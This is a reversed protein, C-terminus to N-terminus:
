LLHSIFISDVHYLSSSGSVKEPSTKFISHFLHLTTDSFDTTTLVSVRRRLEELIVLILSHRYSEILVIIILTTLM